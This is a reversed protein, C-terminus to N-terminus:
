RRGTRCGATARWAARTSSASWRPGSSSPRTTPSRSARATDSPAASTGVSALAHSHIGAVQSASTSARRAGIPTAFGVRKRLIVGVPCVEVAKDTVAIDTDALRGSEEGVAVLGSDPPTRGRVALDFREDTFDVYNDLWWYLLTDGNNYALKLSSCATVLVLLALFFWTRLPSTHM